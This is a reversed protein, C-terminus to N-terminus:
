GIEFSLDVSSALLEKASNYYDKGWRWRDNKYKVANAFQEICFIEIADELDKATIEFIATHICNTYMALYTNV